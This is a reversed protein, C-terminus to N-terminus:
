GRGAGRDGGLARPGVGGRVPGREQVGGFGGELRALLGNLRDVMPALERPVGKLDFRHALDTEEVSEIEWALRKIPGVAGSIVAMLVMGCIVIAASCLGLLMWGMREMTHHLQITDRVVTVVGTLPKGPPGESEEYLATFRESVSRGHRGDPLITDVYEPANGPNPRPLNGTVLSDSRALVDQGDIWIPCFESRVQGWFEPMQEADFELKARDRHQETMSALARAQALIAQDFESLLTQRMSYYIGVGLLALMTATALTTWILVRLRLSSMM